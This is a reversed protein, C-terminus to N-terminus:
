LSKTKEAMICSIIDSKIIIATDVTTEQGARVIENFIEFCRWVFAAAAVSIFFSM